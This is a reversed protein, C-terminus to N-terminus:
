SKVNRIYVEGGKRLFLSVTVLLFPTLFSNDKRSIWWVTHRIASSSAIEFVGIVEDNARSHTSANKCYLDAEFGELFGFIGRKQSVSVFYKRNDREAV